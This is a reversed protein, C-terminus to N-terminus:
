WKDGLLHIAGPPFRNMGLPYYMRINEPPIQIHQGNEVRTTEAALEIWGSRAYIRNTPSHTFLLGCDFKRDAAEKMSAGLAGDVLRRGRLCPTVCVLAVGAVRVTQNGAQIARDVVAVHACLVDDDKLIVSYLPVHGRWRRATAFTDRVHPFCLVLLDRIDRDLGSDIDKEEVILTQV